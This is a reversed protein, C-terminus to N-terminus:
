ICGYLAHWVTSKFLLCCESSSSCRGPMESIVMLSVLEHQLM